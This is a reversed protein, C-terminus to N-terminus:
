RLNLLKITEADQEGITIHLFYVGESVNTPRLTLSAEGDLMKSGELVKRGQSDYLTYKVEGSLVDTFSLTFSSQFPNPFAQYVQLGEIRRRIVKIPSYFEEYFTSDENENIIHLRFYYLDRQALLQYEYSQPVSTLRGTAPVVDIEEFTKGNTSREIRFEKCYYEPQTTWSLIANANDYEADWLTLETHLEGTVASIQVDDIVLGNLQVDQDSKFVFRFGVKGKGALESINVSYRTFYPEEGSFYRSGQPFAGANGLNTNQTNYWNESVDNRLPKWKEAGEELYEVRFGDFGGQMRWKGWFSFEYLGEESMDFLPLYFYAETNPEYYEDEPALVIAYQGSHTGDKYLVDSQGRAFESGSISYMGYQEEFGEFDGGYEAEDPLYPLSHEPLIKLTKSETLSNNITLSIQYSGISNYTHWANAESATNGDGFDWAYSDANLSAEGVFLLPIGVYHILPAELHPTPPSLVDTTFLGRGHTGALVVKDSMRYRLMDTRVLPMGNEILPPLWTTSDGNLLDTTWVGLETAIMAQQPNDPNFIGWRVPMDPLNGEVGTWSDGGDTSEWINNLLGYNSLTVLLHDPNGPEIDISAIAGSGSFVVEVDVLDGQDANDVRLVKAPSFSGFYVRNPVNPDVAIASVFFSPLNADFNVLDVQGTKVHWRYFDGDFTQSYLIDSEDDYDSPCNFSGNFGPGGSFSAGGDTSLSYSGFQSSVMQYQPENQDIHAFFGDGGRVAYGPVTGWGELQLSNNDQTGGLFYDNFSEPHIDCAYFQTVNYGLNKDEVQNTTGNASRYIGGDNGFYIIGQREPDFLIKHQDVHMNFAFTSWSIAGDYSVMIPVGGAVVHNPDFPDVAIDLDYWAQGNTFENGNIEPRSREVWNNGGNATYFVSSAGGGQSGILYMVNPDSHSVAVEIRNFGGGIQGSTLNTWSGPDGTSSRFVGSNNSAVLQGDTTYLIDYFDNSTGLGSGHVKEWDAGGNQSRWLGATTAAYIDSSLPHVLLSRTYRFSNNQTAPLLNWSNGGDSSKFIGVGRVADANPYGEGTGLYMLQPNQPDQAMAGIALNELEDGIKQWKPDTASIDDSKWLGGSVAGAWITNGTPDNLDILITRTRGGINNPGREKWRPALIDSRQTRLPELEEQMRRTQERAIILRETPPYGLAPDLTRRFNDEYADKFSQAKDEKEEETPTTKNKELPCPLVGLQILAFLLTLAVFILLAVRSLTKKMAYTNTSVPEFAPEKSVREM